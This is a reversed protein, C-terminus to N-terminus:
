LLLVNEYNFICIISFPYSSFKLLFSLHHSLFVPNLYISCAIGYLCSFSGFLFIKNPYIRPTIAYIFLVSYLSFHWVSFLFFMKIILM